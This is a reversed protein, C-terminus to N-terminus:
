RPGDILTICSAMVTPTLLALGYGAVAIPNQVLKRWFVSKLVRKTAACKLISENAHRLISYRQQTNM